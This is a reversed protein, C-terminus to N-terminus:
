TNSEKKIKFQRMCITCTAGCENVIAERKGKGLGVDMSRIGSDQCKCKVIVKGTM